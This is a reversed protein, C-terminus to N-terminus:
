GCAPSSKASLSLLCVARVAGRQRDPSDRRRQRLDLGRRDESPRCRHWPRPTWSAPTVPEVLPQSECVREMAAVLAGADREGAAALDGAAQLARSLTLAAEREETTLNVNRSSIALGDPDRVTPCAVIEVGFFLDRVMREILKLQQYDKGSIRGTRVRSTSYCPWSRRSAACTGQVPRERGSRASGARRSTSVSAQRRSIWRPEVTCTRSARLSSSTAGKRRSCRPTASSPGPTRTSTRGRGFQTPNVFISAVVRDCEDRATRILSLHGEHLAGMTPVLGVSLGGARWQESIARM